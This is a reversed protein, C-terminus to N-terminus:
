NEETNEAEFLIHQYAGIDPSTTRDTELIDLPSKLANTLGAQNIVESEEGIQFENLATNKFHLTKNLILNEYFSTNSFNYLPNETTNNYKLFCNQFYFIFNDNENKDLELENSNSGDIICNTFNAALNKERIIPNGENDNEIDTNSIQLTADRRISGSWYNAFTAHNFKYSGGNKIALSAKRSNGIVLNEGDIITKNALV